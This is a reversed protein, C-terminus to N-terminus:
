GSPKEAIVFQHDNRFRYAGDRGECDRIARLVEGKMHERGAQRIAPVAPGISALARWAIEADPWELTSVRAGRELVDFGADVLM